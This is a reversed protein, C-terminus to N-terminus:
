RQQSRGYLACETDSKVQEQPKPYQDTIIGSGYVKVTQAKPAVMDLAAKISLGTLDPMTWGAGSQTKQAQKIEGVKNIEFTDATKKVEFGAASFPLIPDFSKGVHRNYMAALV